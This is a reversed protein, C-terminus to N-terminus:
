KQASILRHVLIPKNGSVKLGKERLLNRLDIVRSDEYLKQMETTWPSPFKISKKIKKSNQIKNIKSKGKKINAKDRKKIMVWHANCYRGYKSDFAHKNCSEDKRKGSGFKYECKYHPMCMYEPYNVGYLRILNKHIPLYPLLRNSVHRCYPCKFENKQLKIVDRMGTHKKFCKQACVEHYLPEYNFTHNCPLTIKNYTLKEGTLLCLDDNNTEDDSDNLLEKYFDINGDSIIYNCM